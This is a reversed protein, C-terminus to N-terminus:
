RVVALIDAGHQWNLLRSIYLMGPDHHPAFTSSSPAPFLWEFHHSQVGRSHLIQIPHGAAAILSAQSLLGSCDDIAIIHDPKSHRIAATIASQWASLADAAALTHLRSSPSAGTLCVTHTSGGQIALHHLVSALQLTVDDAHRCVFLVSNWNAPQVARRIAEQAISQLAPRPDQDPPVDGFTALLEHCQDFNLGDGDSEALGARAITHPTWYLDVAALPGTRWPYKVSEIESAAAHDLIIQPSGNFSHDLSLWYAAASCSSGTGLIICKKAEKINALGLTIARRPQQNQTTYVLRTRSTPWADIENQGLREDPSAALLVLDLGGLEEIRNEISTCFASLTSRDGAELSWINAGCIDTNSQLFHRFRYSHSSTSSPWWDWVPVAALNALSLTGAAVRAALIDLVLQVPGPGSGSPSHPDIDFAILALRGEAARARVVAAIQDAARNAADSAFRLISLPNPTATM